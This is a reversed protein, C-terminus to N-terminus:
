DDKKKKKFLNVFTRALAYVIAIGVVGFLFFFDKLEKFIKKM